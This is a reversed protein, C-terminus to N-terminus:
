GTESSAVGLRPAMKVTSPVPNQLRCQGSLMISHIHLGGEKPRARSVKRSFDECSVSAGDGLRGAYTESRCGFSRRRGNGRGAQEEALVQCNVSTALTENTETDRLGPSM